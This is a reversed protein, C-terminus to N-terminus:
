LADVELTDGDEGAFGVGDGCLVVDGLRHNRYWILCRDLIGTMM